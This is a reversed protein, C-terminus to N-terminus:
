PSHVHVSIRSLKPERGNRRRYQQNGGYDNPGLLRAPRARRSLSTRRRSPKLTTRRGISKPRSMTPRSTRTPGSTRALTESRETREPTFKIQGVILACLNLLNLLAKLLAILRQVLLHAREGFTLAIRHTAFEIFSGHSGSGFSARLNLDLHFDRVRPHHRLHEPHQRRLLTRLECGM